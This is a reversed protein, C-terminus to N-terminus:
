VKFFVYFYCLFSILCEFLVIVCKKGYNTIQVLIAHFVMSTKYGQLGTYHTLKQMVYISKAFCAPQAYVSFSNACGVEFILVAMDAADARREQDAQNSSLRLRQRYDHYRFIEIFILLILFIWFKLIHLNFFELNFFFIFNLFPHARRSLIQSSQKIVPAVNM